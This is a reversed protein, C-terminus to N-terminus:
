GLINGTMIKRGPLVETIILCMLALTCTDTTVGRAIGQTVDYTKAFRNIRPLHGGDAPPTGSTPFTLRRVPRQEQGM